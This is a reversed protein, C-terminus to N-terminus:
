LNNRFWLDLDDGEYRPVLHFHFHFVSQQAVEGAAHLLNMGKAENEIVLQKGIAKSVLVLHSLLFDEIDFINESHEKPIVLVHGKSVPAITEMVICLDDEFIKTAASENNVIKCFICEM